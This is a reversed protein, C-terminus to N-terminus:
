PQHLPMISLLGCQAIGWISSIRRMRNRERASSPIARRRVHRHAQVSCVFPDGDRAGQERRTAMWTAVDALTGFDWWLPVRRPRKGKTTSARLSLHPRPSDIVVDDLQLQAIESVRLGCCCALRFIVLNRRANLSKIANAKLDALVSALERRTLISTSDVNWNPMTHM